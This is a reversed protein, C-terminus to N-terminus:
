VKSVFLRTRASTLAQKAFWESFQKDGREVADTMADTIKPATGTTDAADDHMDWPRQEDVNDRHPRSFLSRQPSPRSGVATTPSAVAVNVDRRPSAPSYFVSSEGFANTSERWTLPRARPSDFPSPARPTSSNAFGDQSGELLM